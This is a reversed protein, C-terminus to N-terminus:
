PPSPFSILSKDDLISSRTIFFIKPLAKILIEKCKNFNRKKIGKKKMKMKSALVLDQVYLVNIAHYVFSNLYAVIGSVQGMRDTRPGTSLLRIEAFCLRKQECKNM